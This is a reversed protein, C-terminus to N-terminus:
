LAHRLLSRADPVVPELTTALQIYLQTLQAIYRSPPRLVNYLGSILPLQIILPLFGAFPSANHKTYLAQMEKSYEMQSAQDKKNAYKKQLKQMEPQLRTMARMSRQQKMKLPTLLLQAVLTFVIISIGLTGVPTIFSVGEFILNLIIGFFSTIIGM